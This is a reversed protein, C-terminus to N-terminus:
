KFRYDRSSFIFILYLNILTLLLIFIERFIISVPDILIIVFLYWRDNRSLSLSLSSSCFPIICLFFYTKRKIRAQSARTFMTTTPHRCFRDVLKDNRWRDGEIDRILDRSSAAFLPSRIATRLHSLIFLSFSPLSLFRSALRLFFLIIEM